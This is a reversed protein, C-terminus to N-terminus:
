QPRPRARGALQTTSGWPTSWWQTAMGHASRIDWGPPRPDAPLKRGDTFIQRFITEVEYLVLIEGPTQVIKFPEPLLDAHPVGDPLCIPQPRRSGAPRASAPNRSGRAYAAGRRGQFRLPHRSFIEFQHIRGLRVPQRARPARGAGALGRLPRAQRKRPCGARDYEGQRRPHASGRPDPQEAVPSACM